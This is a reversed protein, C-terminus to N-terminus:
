DKLVKTLIERVLEPYAKGRTEKMVQGILFGIAKTKGAQYDAVSKPNAKVTAEAIRELESTDSVM